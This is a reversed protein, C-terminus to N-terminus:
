FTHRVGIHMTKTAGNAATDLAKNVSSTDADRNEYRGYVSSRKSLAYDAGFGVISRDVNATTKDNSGSAAVHLTVAGMAYSLGLQRAAVDVTTGTAGLTNLKNSTNATSLLSPSVLGSVDGSGVKLTQSALAINLPGQSYAISFDRVGARNAGAAVANESTCATQACASEGGVAVKNVQPVYLLRASLGGMSPTTYELSGNFRTPATNNYNAASTGYRTYIASSSYGSGLATGFTSGVGWAGLSPSNLRGFLVKGFGSLVKGYGNLGKGFGRM